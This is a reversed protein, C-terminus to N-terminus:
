GYLRSGRWGYSRGQDAVCSIQILWVVQGRRWGYVQGGDSKCGAVNSMCVKGRLLVLHRGDAMCGVWILSVVQGMLWVFKGGCCYWIGGWWGYLRGVNSKCGAGYAMCVKGRLWVVQRWLGYLGGGDTMCGKGRLWWGYLIGVTLGAVQRRWCYLRGTNVM